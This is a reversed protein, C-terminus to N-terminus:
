GKITLQHQLIASMIGNNEVSTISKVQSDAYTTVHKDIENQKTDLQIRKEIVNDRTAINVDHNNNMTVLVMAFCLSLLLKKNMM